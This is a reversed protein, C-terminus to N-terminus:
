TYFLLHSFHEKIEGSINDLYLNDSLVWSWLYYESYSFNVVLSGEQDTDIGLFSVRDEDIEVSYTEFQNPFSTEYTFNPHDILIQGDHYYIDNNM